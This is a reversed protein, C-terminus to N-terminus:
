AVVGVGEELKALGNCWKTFFHYVEPYRKMFLMHEEVGYHVHILKKIGDQLAAPNRIEIKM